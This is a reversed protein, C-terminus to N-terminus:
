TRPTTDELEEAFSALDGATQPSSAVLGAVEAEAQDPNLPQPEQPQPTVAQSRDEPQVQVPRVIETPGQPPAERVQPEIPRQVKGVKEKQKKEPQIPPGEQPVQRIGPSNPNM